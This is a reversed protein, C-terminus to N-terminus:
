SGDPQAPGILPGVYPIRPPDPSAGRLTCDHGAIDAFGEGARGGSARSVRTSRHHLGQRLGGARGGGAPRGTRPRRQLMSDGALEPLGGTIIRLPEGAAHVDIATVVSKGQRVDKRSWDMDM